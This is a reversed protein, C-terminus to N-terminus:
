HISYFESSAKFLTGNLSIQRLQTDDQITKVLGPTICGIINFTGLTNLYSQEVSLRPPAHVGNFLYSPDWVFNHHIIIYRPCNVQTSQALTLDDRLYMINEVFLPSTSEHRPAQIFSRISEDLKHPLTGLKGGDSGHKDKRAIAAPWRHTTSSLYSIQHQPHVVSDAKIHDTKSLRGNPFGGSKANFGLLKREVSPM